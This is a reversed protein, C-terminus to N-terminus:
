GCVKWVGNEDKMKLTTQPYPIAQPTSNVTVNLSGSVVVDATDGNNNQEEFMLNNMDLTAGSQAYSSKVADISNQMQKKVDDSISSCILASADGQAMLSALYYVKAADAAGTAANTTATPLVTTPPADPQGTAVRYLRGDAPRRSRFACVGFSSRSFADM